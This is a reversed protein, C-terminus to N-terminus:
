NFESVWYGNNGVTLSVTYSRSAVPYAATFNTSAQALAPGSSSERARVMLLSAASCAGGYCRAGSSYISSISDNNSGALISFDAVFYLTVYLTASTITCRSYNSYGTGSSVSCGAISATKARPNASQSFGLFRASGDSFYLRTGVMGGENVQVESVPISEPLESDPTQGNAIKTILADQTAGDIGLTTMQGRLAIEDTVSSANAAGSGSIAFVIAAILVAIKSKKILKSNREISFANGGFCVTILLHKITM